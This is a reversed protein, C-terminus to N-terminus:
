LARADQHLQIMHELVVKVDTMRGDLELVDATFLHLAAHHRRLLHHPALVMVPVRM